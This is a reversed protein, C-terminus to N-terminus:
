FQKHGFGRWEAVFHGQIGASDSMILYPNGARGNCQCQKDLCSVFYLYKMLLLSVTIITLTRRSHLKSLLSNIFM